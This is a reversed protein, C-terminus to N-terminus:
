ENLQDQNHWRSYMGAFEEKRTWDPNGMADCLARWEEESGVAIAIWSDDGKCPYVDHPAMIGDRNGMRPPVRGNMMYDMVGEPQLCITSEWQSLDLYQGEGTERRHNLAALIYFATHLAALPDAYSIPLPMPPGGVYGTLSALGSLAVQPAGYLVFDRDPGFAGTGSMSVYIIDPRVEKLIEYDLGFGKMVRPAFNEIVVDSVAVVRKAIEMARPNSLDLTVGLKSMAIHNFYGSQDPSPQGFAFPKRELADTNQWEVYAAHVPPDAYAIPQLIRTIDIRRKSEFEIVEAGMMALQFTCYPGAWVWSFDAVRIGALPKDM